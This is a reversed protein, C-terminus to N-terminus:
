VTSARIVRIVNVIFDMDEGVTGCTVRGEKGVNLTETIQRPVVFEIKGFDGEM